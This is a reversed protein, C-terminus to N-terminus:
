KGAEKQNNAIVEKIKEATTWHLLYSQIYYVKDSDSLTTDLIKGILECREAAENKYHQELLKNM